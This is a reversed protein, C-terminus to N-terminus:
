EVEITKGPTATCNTKKIKTNIAAKVVKTGTTRYIHTVPENGLTTQQKGDGFDWDVKTVEHSGYYNPTFTYLKANTVDKTASVSTSAGEQVCDVAKSCSSLIFTSALLSLAVTTLTSKM